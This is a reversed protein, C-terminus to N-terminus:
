EGFFGIEFAMVDIFDTIEGLVCMDVIPLFPRVWKHKQLLKNILQCSKYHMTNILKLCMWIGLYLTTLQEMSQM